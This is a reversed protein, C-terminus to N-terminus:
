PQRSLHVIACVNSAEAFECAIRSGQARIMQIPHYGEFSYNGFARKYPWFHYLAHMVILFLVDEM